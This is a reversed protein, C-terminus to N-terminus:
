DSETDILDRLRQSEQSYFSVLASRKRFLFSAYKINSLAEDILKRRQPSSPESDGLIYMRLSTIWKQAGRKTNADLPVGVVERWSLSATHSQTGALGALIARRESSGVPLTSALRILASRDSATLRRSM